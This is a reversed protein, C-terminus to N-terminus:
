GIGAGALAWGVAASAAATVATRAAAEWRAAPVAELADLRREADARWAADAEQLATLRTVCDRLQDLEAGHKDLREDARGIAREHASHHMCVGDM